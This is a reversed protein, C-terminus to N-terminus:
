IRCFKGILLTEEAIKQMIEQNGGHKFRDGLESKLKELDIIYDTEVMVVAMVEM